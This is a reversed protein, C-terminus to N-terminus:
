GLAPHPLSAAFEGPCRISARSEALGPHLALACLPQEWPSPGSSEQSSSQELAGPSHQSLFRVQGHEQAEPSNRWDM